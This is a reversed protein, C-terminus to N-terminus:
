RYRRWGAISMGVIIIGALAALASWAVESEAQVAPASDGTKPAGPAPLTAAPTPPAQTPVATPISTPTPPVPTPTLTPAVTPTPTAPCPNEAFATRFLGGPLLLATNSIVGCNGMVGAVTVYNVGNVFNDKAENLHRAVTVFPGCSLLQRNPIASPGLQCGMSDATLFWDIGAPLTDVVTLEETQSNGSNTVTITFSVFSGSVASTKGFTVIPAPEPTPTPTAALTVGIMSLAALAATLWVILRKTM